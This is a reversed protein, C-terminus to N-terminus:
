VYIEKYKRNRDLCMEKKSIITLPGDVLGEIDFTTSLTKSRSCSLWYEGAIEDISKNNDPMKSQMLIDANFWLIPSTSVLEYIYYQLYCGQSAWLQSKVTKCWENASEETPAVFTCRQRSPCDQFLAQRKDELGREMKAKLSDDNYQRVFPEIIKGVNFDELSFFYVHNQYIGM